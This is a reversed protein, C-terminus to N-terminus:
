WKNRLKWLLGIHKLSQNDTFRSFIMGEKRADVRISDKIKTINEDDNYGIERWWAYIDDYDQLMRKLKWPATSSAINNGWKRVKALLEVNTLKEYKSPMNNIEIIAIIKLFNWIM